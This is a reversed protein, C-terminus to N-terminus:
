ASYRKLSGAPDKPDFMVKDIQLAFPKMDDDPVAIKLEAAVERYLDQMLVRGPLAAYDLPQKALGFREYQALFWVAHGTRPYNVKGSHFFRMRDEGFTKNGLGGGLNYQGALRDAIADVPVNLYAPGSFIKAMEPVNKPEDCWQCAELVAKTVKKLEDRRNAAFTANAALCKEPHDRWLDQSAFHTFGVNERV